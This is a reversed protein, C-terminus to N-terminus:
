SNPPESATLSQELQVIEKQVWFLELLEPLFVEHSRAATFNEAGEDPEVPNSFSFPKGFAARINPLEATMKQCEAYLASRKARLAALRERAEGETM